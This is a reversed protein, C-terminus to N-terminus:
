YQCGNSLKTCHYSLYYTSPLLHQLHTRSRQKTATHDIGINGFDIGPVDNINQLLSQEDMQLVAGVNVIEIPVITSILGHKVPFLFYPRFDAVLDNLVSGILDHGELDAIQHTFGNLIHAAAIVLVNGSLDAAQVIINEALILRGLVLFQRVPRVNAASGVAHHKRIPFGIYLFVFSRELNEGKVGAESKHDVGGGEAIGGHHAHLIHLVLVAIQNETAVGTVVVVFHLISPRDNPAFRLNQTNGDDFVRRILSPQSGKLDDERQQVSNVGHLAVAKITHLLEYLREHQKVININVSLIKM